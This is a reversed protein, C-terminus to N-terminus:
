AVRRLEPLRHTTVPIVEVEGAAAARATLELVSDPSYVADRTLEAQHHARDKLDLHAMVVTALIALATVLDTVLRVTEDDATGGILKAVLAVAATVVPRVMVKNSFLEGIARAPEAAYRPDVPMGIVPAAPADPVNVPGPPNEPAPSGAVDGPFDM